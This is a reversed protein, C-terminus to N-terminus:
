REGWSSTPRRRGARLGPPKRACRAEFAAPSLYGLSSHRRRPNDLCGIFDFVAM